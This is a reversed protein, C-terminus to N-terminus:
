QWKLTLRGEKKGLNEMKALSTKALVFFLGTLVILIVLEQWLPIFGM